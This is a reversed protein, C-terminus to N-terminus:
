SQSRQWGPVRLSTSSVHSGYRTRSWISPARTSPSLTSGAPMGAKSPMALSLEARDENRVADSTLAVTALIRESPVGCRRLEGVSADIAQLTDDTIASALPAPAIQLPAQVDSNLRLLEGIVRRLEAHDRWYEPVRPWFSQGTLRTHDCDPVYLQPDLLTHGGLERIERSFSVMREASLDRPSLIVDGSGWKGILFRCHEMMGYGFQLAFRM